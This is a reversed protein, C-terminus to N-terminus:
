KEILRRNPSNQQTVVIFLGCDSLASYMQEFSKVTTTDDLYEYFGSSIIINPFWKKKTLLRQHHKGIRLVNAKKYALSLSGSMKRGYEIVKSDIDLCLAEIKASLDSALLEIIYRSSGSAMDVVRTEIGAGTNNKIENRLIKVIKDKRYRTAKSAPLNLLIRDVIIGFNNYGKAENKYIHDFNIGSDAYGFM